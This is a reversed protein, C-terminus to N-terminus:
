ATAASQPNMYGQTMGLFFDRAKIGVVADGLVGTFTYQDLPLGQTTGHHPGLAVFMMFPLPTFPALEARPGQEILKLINHAAATAQFRANGAMKGVPGSPGQVNAVDGAAFVQPVGEVQLFSNVKIGGKTLHAAWPSAQFPESNIKSFGIAVIQVDSTYQRGTVTSTLTRRKPISLDEDKPLALMENLVIEVGLATLKQRIDAKFRAAAGPANNFLADGGHVLTVKAAPFAAAIYAAYEVGAAGGGIVLVDKAKGLAEYGRKFYEVIEDAARTAALACFLLFPCHM